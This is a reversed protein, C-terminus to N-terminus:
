KDLRVHYPSQHLDCHIFSPTTVETDALKNLPSSEATEAVPEKEGHNGMFARRKAIVDKKAEDRDVTGNGDRDMRNFAERCAAIEEDSLKFENSM